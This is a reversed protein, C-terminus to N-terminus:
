KIRFSQIEQFDTPLDPQGAAWLSVGAVVEGTSPNFIHTAMNDYLWIQIDLTPVNVLM